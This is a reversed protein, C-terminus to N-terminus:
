EGIGNIEVIELRGRVIEYIVDRISLRFFHFPSLLLRTFSAARIIYFPPFPKEDGASRRHVVSLTRSISLTQGAFSDDSEGKKQKIIMLGTALTVVFQM